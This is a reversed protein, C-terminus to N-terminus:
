TAEAPRMLDTPLERIATVTLHRLRLRRDLWDTVAPRAFGVALRMCADVGDEAPKVVLLHNEVAVPGPGAYVAARARVAGPTRTPASTRRLVVFPPEHLRGDHRVTNATRLTTAWAPLSDVTLYPSAPGAPVDRHPVVDGVSVTAVDGLREHASAEV